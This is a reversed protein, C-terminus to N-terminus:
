HLGIEQNQRQREECFQINCFIIDKDLSILFARYMFKPM